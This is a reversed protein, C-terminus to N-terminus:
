QLLTSIRRLSEIISCDTDQLAELNQGLLELSETLLRLIKTITWVRIGLLLVTIGLICVAVSLIRVQKKVPDPYLSEENRGIRIPRDKKGLLEVDGRM